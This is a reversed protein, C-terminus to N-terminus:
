GNSGRALGSQAARAQLPSTESQQLGISEMPTGLDSRMTAKGCRLRLRQSPSVGGSCFAPRTCLCTAWPRIGPSPFVEAYHVGREETAGAPLPTQHLNPRTCRPALIEYPGLTTGTGLSM